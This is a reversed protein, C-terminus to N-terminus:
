QPHRWVRDLVRLLDMVLDHSRPKRFVEFRMDFGTCAQDLDHGIIDIREKAHEREQQLAQVAFRQM